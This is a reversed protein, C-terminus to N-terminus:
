GQQPTFTTLGDALDRKLEGTHQLHMLHAYTESEAMYGWSRERFLSRMYDTVTAKEGSEAAERITDLREEHHELIDGAREGLDTFPNGHAPLVIRADFAKMRELSSFFDALPDDTETMGSIHPTITPLVHDGSLMIQEVPDFLCLHDHTHGPTHIAIWERRALRVVEGDAVRLNPNPTRMWQREPSNWKQTLELPPQGRETGWPTIPDRDWPAVDEDDDPDYERFEDVDGDTFKSFSEHTLIESGAADRLRESGGFHDFHSHTVVVTHVDTTKYGAAGLRQQLAAWSEENPLGPDVVAVGREDELFYCNVHGLGPLDIPLQSRLVGPGVETIEDTARLKESREPRPAQDDSM